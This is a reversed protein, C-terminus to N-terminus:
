PRRMESHRARFHDSKESPEKVTERITHAFVDAPLCIKVVGFGAEPGKAQVLEPV